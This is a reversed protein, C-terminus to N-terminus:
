PRSLRTKVQWLAFGGAGLLVAYVAWEAASTERKTVPLANSPPAAPDPAFTALEALAAQCRPELAKQALKATLDDRTIVGDRPPMDLGINACYPDSTKTPAQCPFEGQTYLTSSKVTGPAAVYQYLTGADPPTAFPKGGHVGLFFKVVYPLQDIVSLNMLALRGAEDVGITSNARKTFQILGIATPYGSSNCFAIGPSMTAATENYIIVLLDEARCGIQAAARRLAVYDAPTWKQPPFPRVCGSYAM